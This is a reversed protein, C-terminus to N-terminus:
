LVAAALLKRVAQPHWIIFFFRAAHLQVRSLLLLPLYGTRLAQVIAYRM